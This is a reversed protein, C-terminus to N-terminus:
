TGEDDTIDIYLYKRTDRFHMYYGHSIILDTMLDAINDELTTTQLDGQLTDTPCTGLRVSTDYAKDILLGGRDPWGRAYNHDIRIYLDDATRCATLDIYDLEGPEQMLTLDSVYQHSIYYAHKTSYHSDSGAGPLLVINNAQDHYVFQRGVPMLSNAIALLGPPDNLTIVDTFLKTLTTGAPYFFDPTYRYELLKEIGVVTLRKDRRNDIDYQEVYGRFVPKSNKIVLVEAFQKVPIQRPLTLEAERAQFKDTIKYAKYSWKAEPGLLFTPQNPNKVWIEIM